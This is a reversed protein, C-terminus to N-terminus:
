GFSKSAEAQNDFFRCGWFTMRDVDICKRSYEDTVSEKFAIVADRFTEGKFRGHFNAKSSNGTVSYGETWVEFGESYTEITETPLLNDMNNFMEEWESDPIAEANYHIPVLEVKSAFEEAYAKNMQEITMGKDFLPHPKFNCKDM